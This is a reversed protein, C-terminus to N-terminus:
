EIDLEAMFDTEKCSPMRFSFTTKGNMNSISFDGQTIIDMGILLDFGTYRGEVVRVFPLLVNNPLALSIDYINVTATGNAHCVTASSVPALGLKEAADKSISSCSAGTDWLACFTTMNLDQSVDKILDSAECTSIIQETIGDYKRSFAQFRMM